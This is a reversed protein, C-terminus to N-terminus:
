VVSMCCDYLLLLYTLRRHTYASSTHPNLISLLSSQQIVPQMCDSMCDEQAGDLNYKLIAKREFRYVTTVSNLLCNTLVLSRDCFGFNFFVQVDASFETLDLPEVYELFSIQTSSSQEAAM